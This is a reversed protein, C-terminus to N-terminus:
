ASRNSSSRSTTASRRSVAILDADAPDRIPVFFVHGGFSAAIRPTMRDGASNRASQSSRVPESGVILLARVQQYIATWRKIKPNVNEVYPLASKAVRASSSTAMHRTIRQSIGNASMV